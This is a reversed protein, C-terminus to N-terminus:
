KKKLYTLSSLRVLILILCTSHLAVKRCIDIESYSWIPMYWGCVLPLKQFSSFIKKCPFTVMLTKAFHKKPDVSDVLYWTTLDNLQRPLRSIPGTQVKGDPMYM